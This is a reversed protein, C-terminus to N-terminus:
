VLVGTGEGHCGASLHEKSGGKGAAVFCCIMRVHSGFADDIRMVSIFLTGRSLRVLGASTPFVNNAKSGFIPSKRFTFYFCISIIWDDRWVFVVFGSIPGFGRICDILRGINCQVISEFGLDEGERLRDAYHGAKVSIAGRVAYEADLVKPNITSADLPPTKTM